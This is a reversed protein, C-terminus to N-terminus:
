DGVIVQREWGLTAARAWAGASLFIARRTGTPVRAASIDNTTVAQAGGAELVRGGISSNLPAPVDALSTAATSAIRFSLWRSYAVTFEDLSFPMLGECSM